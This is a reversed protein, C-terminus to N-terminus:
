YDSKRDYLKFEEQKKYWISLLHSNFRMNTPLFLFLFICSIISLIGLMVCLSFQHWRLYKGAIYGRQILKIVSEEKKIILMPVPFVIALGWLILVFRVLNLIPDALSIFFGECIFKLFFFYLAVLFTFFLLRPYQKKTQSLKIETKKDEPVAALQLMFIPAIFIILINQILYSVAKNAGSMFTTLCIVTVLVIGLIVNFPFFTNSQNKASDNAQKVAKKLCFQQRYRDLPLGCSLCYIDIDEVKKKCSKCIM